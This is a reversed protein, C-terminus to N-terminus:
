ANVLTIELVTVQCDADLLLPCSERQWQVEAYKLRGERELAAEFAAYTAENRRTSAIWAVADVGAKELLATLTRVLPEALAPDFVIDSGLIVDVPPLTAVAPGPERWDLSRVTARCVADTGTKSEESVQREVGPPQLEAEELVPGLNLEVNKRLLVLVDAHTDTLTLRGPRAHMAAALGALGPGAGLELVHGNCMRQARSPERVLSALVQAAPWTQLGTTGRSLLAAAEELVVAQAGGPMLGEPVSTTDAPDGAHRSSGAAAAEEENGARVTEATGADDSGGPALVPPFGPSSHQRSLSQIPNLLYVRHGPDDDPQAMAQALAMHLEEEVAQGLEGDEAQFGAGYRRLLQKLVARRALPPPPYRVAWLSLVNLLSLALPASLSLPWFTISSSPACQLAARLLRLANKEEEEADTEKGDQSKAAESM